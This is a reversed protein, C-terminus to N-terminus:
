RVELPREREGRLGGGGGGVGLRGMICVRGDGGGTEKWTVWTQKNRAGRERQEMQGTDEM